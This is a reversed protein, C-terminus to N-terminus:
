PQVLSWSSHWGGERTTLYGQIRYTGNAWEIGIAQATNAAWPSNTETLESNTLIYGQGSKSLVGFAYRDTQADAIYNIHNIETSYSSRSIKLSAPFETGSYPYHGLEAKVMEMGKRFNALDQKVINDHANKQINNYAVISIAALIGIVVIVILLEVITFGHRKLNM